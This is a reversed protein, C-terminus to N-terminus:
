SVVIDLWRQETTTARDGPRLLVTTTDSEVIAPGDIVQGQSLASFDFVPASLWEGLYIQRTHSSAAPATNAASPEMPPAPLLGVTAVRANILVPKQDKLSYTYLEEHRREFAAKLQELLDSAELDIEDMPVDIEFIQEGYRMDASLRTVVEGDFWSGMRNRGETQMKRYLARVGEPDLQDTEGIHSHVAESRLETALMGWASLVSAVRPLLVRSLGLMRALETVHLGAAGGFGLLAFRRPDVGRRVTALRVGEAMQTNVVRHVGEAAHLVDVGLKEALPELVRQAAAADLRSDGGLFKAADLFGLVVSADTVAAQKGGHGYCAPGPIAGASQPGVKLLGGEDVRAISGGGAGLTIIDLSPLAIQENTVSREASLSVNGNVVLSIDTSTGGMDFTILDPLGLMAAVRRSGALGGAPGSLVTGAAIRVAEEVPAVGGHSLMILLPGTYGSEILRGELGQLYGRILPGVYANVVTTSIRQYEKIQPLVRSSLSVYVDPLAATIADLTQEEHSADRYAHLYCVAISNVRARRLTKIARQLSAENLPIAVRGDARIREEVGLRLARPVLPESRALRLNYREPKLGERMELIDRHGATTLLGVKAGKRELLANTAVTMGHVIRETQALLQGLQLDLEGALRTLGHMVGISQDAPTSPVKVFTVKGATDVAIVDTFTGGVDAAVRYM